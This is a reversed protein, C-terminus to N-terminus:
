SPRRQLSTREAHFHQFPAGMQPPFNPPKQNPVVVPGGPCAPPGSRLPSIARAPACANQNAQFTANFESRTIVGDHDRDLTAFVNNVSAGNGPPPCHGTAPIALPTRQNPAPSAPLNGPLRVQSNSTAIAPRSAVLPAATLPWPATAVPGSQIRQPQGPPSPQLQGQSPAPASKTKTVQAQMPSAQLIPAARTAVSPSGQRQVPVSVAKAAAKAAADAVPGAGISQVSTAPQALNPSNSDSTITSVTAHLRTRDLEGNEDDAPNQPREPLDDEPSTSAKKLMPSDMLKEQTPESNRVHNHEQSKGRMPALVDAGVDRDSLDGISSGMLRAECDQRMLRVDKNVALTNENHKHGELADWLRRHEETFAQQFYDVREKLFERERTIRDELGAHNDERAATESSLRNHVNTLEAHASNALDMWQVHKVTADGLANELFDLREELNAMGTGVPVGRLDAHPDKPRKSLNPSNTAHLDKLADVERAHKEAMDQHSQELSSLRDILQGVDHGRQLESSRRNRVNETAVTRRQDRVNKELDELRDGMSPLAAQELRQYLNEVDKRTRELDKGHQGSHDGFAKEVCEMRALMAAHHVDRDKMSVQHKQLRVRLDSIQGAVEEQAERHKDSTDAVGKEALDIRKSVLLHARDREALKAHLQEVSQRSDQIDEGHREAAKGLSQELYDIRTSLSAHQARMSQMSTRTELLSHVSEGLSVRAIHESSLTQKFEQIESRVLEELGCFRETFSGQMKTRDSREQNFQDELRLVENRREALEEGHRAIMQGLEECVEAHRGIRDTFESCKRDMRSDKDVHERELNQVQEHLNVHAVERDAIHKEFFGKLAEIRVVHERSNADTRTAVDQHTPHTQRLASVEQRLATLDRIFAATQERILRLQTQHVEKEKQDISIIQREWEAQRRAAAGELPLQGDITPLSKAWENAVHFVPSRGEAASTAASAM